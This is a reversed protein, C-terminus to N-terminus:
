NSAYAYFAEFDCFVCLGRGTMGEREVVGEAMRAGRM